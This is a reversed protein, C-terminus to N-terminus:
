RATLMVDLIEFRVGFGKEVTLWPDMGRFRAGISKIKLLDDKTLRKRVDEFADCRVSSVIQPSSEVLAGIRCGDTGSLGVGFVGVEREAFKPLVSVDEFAPLATAIDRRFDQRNKAPELWILSPIVGEPGQVRDTVGIFMAEKNCCIDPLIGRHVMDITGQDIVADILVDYKAIDPRMMLPIVMRVKGSSYSEVPNLFDIAFWSNKDEVLNDIERFLDDFFSLNDTSFEM